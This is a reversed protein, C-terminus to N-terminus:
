LVMDGANASKTKMEMFLSTMDMANMMMQAYARVNLYASKM